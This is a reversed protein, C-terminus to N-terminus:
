LRSISAAYLRVERAGGALLAVAAASATAGTTVVDDVLVITAGASRVRQHRRLRFAEGVNILRQEHPLGVQPRTARVRRLANALLLGPRERAMARALVAAQNHGRRWRRRWHLPVPVVLDAGRLIKSAGPAAAMRAGIVKGARIVGAYKLDILLRRAPGEFEAFAHAASIEGGIAIAADFIPFEADCGRCLLPAWADGDALNGCCRCLPPLLVNGIITAVTSIDPSSVFLHSPWSSPTGHAARQDCVCDGAPSM